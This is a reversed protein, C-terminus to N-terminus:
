TYSNMVLFQITDLIMNNDFPKVIYHEAGSAYGNLKDEGTGKATLFIIQIHATKEEKMLHMAVTFGDVYPMMVDLIAIHPTHLMALHIAEKGDFCSIVEYCANTLIHDLALVINPEDDAILIKIPASM